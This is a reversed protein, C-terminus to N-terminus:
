GIRDVEVMAATIHADEATQHSDLWAWLVGALQGATEIPELHDTCQQRM